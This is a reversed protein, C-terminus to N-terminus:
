AAPPIAIIPTAVIDKINKMERNIQKTIDNIFFSFFLVTYKRNMTINTKGQM